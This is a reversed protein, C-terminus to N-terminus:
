HGEIAIQEVRDFIEVFVIKPPKQDQGAGLKVAGPCQLAFVMGLDMEALLRHSTALRAAGPAWM